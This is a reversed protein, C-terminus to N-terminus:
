VIISEKSNLLIAPATSPVSSNRIPSPMTSRGGRRRGGDRDGVEQGLGVRGLPRGDGLRLAADAVIELLARRDLLTRGKKADDVAV